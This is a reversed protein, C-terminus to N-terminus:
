RVAAYSLEKQQKLEAGLGQSEKLRAEAEAHASVLSAHSAELEQFASSALQADQNHHALTVFLYPNSFPDCSAFHEAFFESM